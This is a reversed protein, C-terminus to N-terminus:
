ESWKMGYKWGPIIGGSKKIARALLVKMERYGYAFGMPMEGGHGFFKLAYTHRGDVRWASRQVCVFGLSCAFIREKVEYVDTSRENKLSGSVLSVIASNRKGLM